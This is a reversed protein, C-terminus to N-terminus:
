SSRRSRQPPLEVEFTDLLGTVELLRHPQSGGDVVLTLRRGLLRARRLTSVLVQLGSSDCFSVGALDISFVPAASRAIEHTLHDRLAPAGALDLEGRVAVACRHEDAVTEWEVQM